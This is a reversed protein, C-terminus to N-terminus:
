FKYEYNIGKILNFIEYAEKEAWTIIEEEKNEVDYNHLWLSHHMTEHMVLGMTSVNNVCRSLNIFIFRNKLDPTFNALGAIYSSERTNNHKKCDELSLGHLEKVGFHEFVYCPNPSLLLKYTDKKIYM